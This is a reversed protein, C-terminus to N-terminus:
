IVGSLGCAVYAVAAVRVKDSFVEETVQASFVVFDHLSVPQFSPEPHPAKGWESAKQGAVGAFDLGRVVSDSNQMRALFM